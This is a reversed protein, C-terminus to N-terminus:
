KFPYVSRKLSYHIQLRVDPASILVSHWLRSTAKYALRCVPERLGVFLYLDKIVVCSSCCTNSNNIRDGLNETKYTKIKSALFFFRHCSEASENGTMALPGSNSVGM